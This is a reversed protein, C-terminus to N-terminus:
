ITSSDSLSHYFAVTESNCKEWSYKKSEILGKEIIEQRLSQQNLQKVKSIFEATSLDNLLLASNEAVERITANDLGIVPCGARMAEVVPIGFGEYSSPYVLALAKNFLVNLEKNELSPLFVVRQFAEKSFLKIESENFIGGGVVVLKHNQLENLVSAVFNFNKYSTRGGVFLLFDEELQNTKIFNIESVTYNKIPFYDDSVGVHIVAAKQSPKLPCLRKLDTYTNHSICIVGKSRKIASYKLINHLQKNKYNAYYSHIFDYVTTVEIKNKSGILGRYYSSHYIFSDDSNYYNPLIRHISNSKTKIIQKASFELKQRHFNEKANISELYHLDFKNQKELYQTLEFWYNSVGGNKVKSYIINDLYIKM